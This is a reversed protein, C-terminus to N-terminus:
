SLLLEPMSKRWAVGSVSVAIARVGKSLTTRPQPSALVILCDTGGVRAHPAPDV